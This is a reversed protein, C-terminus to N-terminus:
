HLNEVKKVLQEVRESTKPIREETGTRKQEDVRQCYAAACEREFLWLKKLDKSPSEAPHPDENERCKLERLWRVIEVVHCLIAFPPALPPQKSYEKVVDYYQCKWIQYSNEQVEKFVNSFIAILLNILLVNTVLLYAAMLVRHIWTLHGGAHSPIEGTDLKGEEVQHEVFLEGYVHWYPKYLVDNIVGWYPEKSGFFLAQRFVGYSYVYVLLLCMWVFVHALMRKIMIVKPGLYGSVLYLRFLRLSFIVFNICYLVRAIEWTDEFFRLVFGVFAIVGACSDIVNAFTQFHLRLKRKVDNAEQLIVQRIEDVIIVGIWCLLIIEYISPRPAKRFSFLIVFTYLGIFFLHMGLHSWFKTIPANYFISIKKWFSIKEEPNEEDRFVITFIWLPCLLGLLVKWCKVGPMGRSKWLNNSSSECCPHALFREAKAAAALTLAYMDGWKSLPREVLKESLKEDKNCCEDLVGIALNEFEFAHQKLAARMVYHDDGIKDQMVQFLRCAALANTIAEEDKEWIFRALEFHNLLVAWLLLERFPKEFRRASASPPLENTRPTDGSYLPERHAGILEELLFSIDRLSYPGSPVGAINSLLSYLHNGPDASNYLKTLRSVTLFDRMSVGHALFLKVFDVRGLRLADLMVDDLSGSPWDTDPTFIKEEAVDVRNWTLALKLQDIKSAGSGQSDTRSAFANDVSDVNCPGQAKLLALLIALNFELNNKKDIKYVTLLREDRICSNVIGVIEEIYQENGAYTAFSEKIKAILRAMQDESVQRVGSVCECNNHAFALLDAARRTGEVVVAPIGHEVSEKVAELADEAGELVVTVVPVGLGFESIVRELQARFQLEMGRFKGHTGDDVLLFHTHDPNLSVLKESQNEDEVDYSAHYCGKSGVPNILNKNREVYGWTAIGICQISNHSSSGGWQVSQGERVAHGVAKMVGLNVGGTIIWAGGSTTKAAKILGRNFLEKHHPDLQFNKLGGHISIVIDPKKLKWQELMLKLTLEPETDDSLRIYKALELTSNYVNEFKIDGFANTPPKQVNWESTTVATARHPPLGEENEEEVNVLELHENKPRGCCCLGPENRDAVHRICEKRKFTKYIWDCSERQTENNLLAMPYAAPGEVVHYLHSDGLEDENLLGRTVSNSYTTAPRRCVRATSLPTRGPEDVSSEQGRKVQSSERFFLDCEVKFSYLTPHLPIGM